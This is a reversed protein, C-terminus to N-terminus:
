IVCGPGIETQCPLRVRLLLPEVIHHLVIPMLLELGVFIARLVFPIIFKNVLLFRKVLLKKFHLFAKRLIIRHCCPVRFGSWNYFSYLWYYGLEFRKFFLYCRSALYLVNTLCMILRFLQDTDLAFCRNAMCASEETLVFPM